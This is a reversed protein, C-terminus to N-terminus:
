DDLCYLYSIMEYDRNGWHHSGTKYAKGGMKEYFLRAEHNEKLCWIIMKKRGSARFGNLADQFLAKGIGSKRRAYRVYLAVIECDAEEDDALENWTFGLVENAAVAVRYIQYRQLERKCREEVNLSDLYDSDIIGRYALKWDEVLIEAIQWADNESANRITMRGQEIEAQMRDCWRDWKEVYDEASLIRKVLDEPSFVGREQCAKVCARYMDWDLEDEDWVMPVTDLGARIAAAARTHGDTMVPQGDLMKVPIPQFGSLDEPHLWSEVAARKAASVYFQSPQLDKLKLETIKMETTMWM